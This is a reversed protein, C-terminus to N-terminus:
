SSGMVLVPEIWVLKRQQRGEGYPQNRLFGKRWHMRPSAHSGGRDTADRRVTYNRGIWLPEYLDRDSNKAFGKRVIAQSETEVLEPRCEMILILRLFIAQLYDNFEGVTKPGYDIVDAFRSQMAEPDVTFKRCFIDESDLATWYLTKEDPEFHWCVISISNGGPSAVPGKPLMFIGTKMAWHLSDIEVTLESQMLATLLEKGVWYAPCKAEGLKYFTYFIINKTDTSNHTVQWLLKEKDAFFFVDAISGCIKEYRDYGDVNVVPRNVLTKYWGPPRKAM